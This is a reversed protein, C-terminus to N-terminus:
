QESSGASEGEAMWAGVIEMMKATSLSRLAEIVEESAVLRLLAFGIKMQTHPDDPNEVIDMTLAAPLEEGKEGVPPIVYTKRGVTFRYSGQTDKPKRDAPTKSPTKTPTKTTNTPM